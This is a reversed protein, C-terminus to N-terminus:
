TDNIDSKIRLLQWYYEFVEVLDDYPTDHYLLNMNSRDNHSLTAAGVFDLGYKKSCISTIFNRNIHSRVPYRININKLM